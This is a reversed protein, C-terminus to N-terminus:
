PRSRLPRQPTRGAALRLPLFRQRRVFLALLVRRRGMGPVVAERMAGFTYDWTGLQLVGFCLLIAVAGVHAVVLYLLGASRIEAHRHDTTVLFYSALAMSEWAVMFLYGDDAILVMVMAALFVHYQLCILRIDGGGGKKFYGAAHLSVGTSTVGLLLLFFASLPDLRLHFPLDPLGLPLVRAQPWDFLAFFAAAALVVGGLASRFIVRAHAERSAEVGAGTRRHADLLGAGALVVSL